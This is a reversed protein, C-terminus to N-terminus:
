CKNWSYRHQIVNQVYFIVDCDDDFKISGASRLEMCFKSLSQSTMKINLIFYFLDRDNDFVQISSSCALLKTFHSLQLSTIRINLIYYFM